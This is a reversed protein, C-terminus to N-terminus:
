GKGGPAWDAAAAHRLTRGGAPWHSLEAVGGGGSAGGGEGGRSGRRLSVPAPRMVPRGGGRLPM